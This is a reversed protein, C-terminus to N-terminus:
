KVPRSVTREKLEMSPRFTVVRRPTIECAIGTKPNRGIRAKKHLIRFTGFSSLKVNNGAELESMIIELVSDLTDAAEKRSLGLQEYIASCIDARTLTKSTM